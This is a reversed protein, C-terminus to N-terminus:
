LSNVISCTVMAATKRFWDGSRFPDLNPGVTGEPFRFDDCVLRGLPVVHRQTDFLNGVTHLDLVQEDAVAVGNIVAVEVVKRIDERGIRDDIVRDVAAANTIGGLRDGIEFLRHRHEGRELVHNRRAADLDVAIGGLDLGDTMVRHDHRHAFFENNEGTAKPVDIFHNARGVAPADRLSDLFARVHLVHWAHGNLSWLFDSSEDNPSNLLM